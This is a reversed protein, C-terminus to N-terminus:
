NNVVHVKFVVCVDVDELTGEFLSLNGVTVIHDLVRVIVSISGTRDLMITEVGIM